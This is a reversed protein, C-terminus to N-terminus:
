FLTPDGGGVGTFMVRGFGKVGRALTIRSLIRICSACVVKIALGMKYMSIISL